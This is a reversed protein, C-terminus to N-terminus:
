GQTGWVNGLVRVAGELGETCCALIADAIPPHMPLEPVAALPHWAVDVLRGDRGARLRGGLIRGAYVLNLVHRAEQGAPPEISEALLLLRGVEVRLGTEELLERRAAEVLTEGLEVGGGPLLWYSRGEKLHEVLLLSDGDLLCVAVRIRIVPRRDDCM